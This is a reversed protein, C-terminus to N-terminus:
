RRSCGSIAPEGIESGSAISIPRTTKPSTKRSVQRGSRDVTPIRSRDMASQPRQEGREADAGEGEHHDHVRELTPVGRKNEGEGAAARERAQVAEKGSRPREAHDLCDPCDDRDVTEAATESSGGLRHPLETSRSPSAFTM